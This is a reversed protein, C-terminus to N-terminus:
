RKVEPRAYDALGDGFLSFGIALVVIALGPFTSPWWATTLFDRGEAIMVGWEPTPPQAGLGLFGLSSGLIIDLVFDSTAYILSQVIVNPFLHRLLIRRDTFGLVRAASTYDLQKAVVIEARVLRFYSVWGVLAIAVYMNKLGPGLAAVIAIVLVFFPFAVVIDLVRGLLTDLLGGYFGAISGLISGIVFAPVVSFVGIQLDIRAGNMIRLAVDRGLNDTGFPHAWSPPQLASELHIATPDATWILPGVVAVFVWALILLAGAIMTPPLQRGHVQLRALPVRAAIVNV